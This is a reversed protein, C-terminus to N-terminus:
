IGSVASIWDLYFSVRAAILPFEKSQPSQVGFNVLGHLQLEGGVDVFIPAGPVPSDAGHPYIATQSELLRIGRAGFQAEADENSIIMSESKLKKTTGSAADRQNWWGVMWATDGVQPRIALSSSLTVPMPLRSPVSRELRLLAIDNTLMGPGPLAYDPHIVVEGVNFEVQDSKDRYDYDGVNVSLSSASRGDVLNGATLVWGNRILVGNGLFKGQAEINVVASYAGPRTTTVSGPRSHMGAVGLAAPAAVAALALIAAFAPAAASVQQGMSWVRNNSLTSFM